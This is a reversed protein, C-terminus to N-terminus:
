DFLKEIRDKDNVAEAVLDYGIPVPFGKVAVGWVPRQNGVIGTM